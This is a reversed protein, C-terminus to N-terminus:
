EPGLVRGWLVSDKAVGAKVRHSPCLGERTFGAKELVRGSAGNEAFHYAWVRRLGLRTRAFACVARLAETAYGRNWHEPAVWYGVEAVPQRRALILGIAGVIEGGGRQAMLFHAATGDTWAAPLTAIWAVADEERYPHPILLTTEYVRRDGALKAVAPADEFRAPRLILRETEVTPRPGPSPAREAGPEIWTGECIVEAPGTMFVHGSSEDWRVRLAGGPLRVEVDRDLRGTLVGAVVVACAGTGCAQTAGAGREWTRMRARGRTEVAVFHANVRQPFAEHREILPGWRALDIAELARASLAAGSADGFFVAHPNGMSVFTATAEAPAGAREAEAGCLAVAWEHSRPGRKIRDEAVPVRALELVPEGMDVTAEVLTGREDLRYGISLVGRGTEVSMPNHEIGLRDHAFKAVCRVGNGCMESESGDRNFMRMRVQAGREGGASTPPCVVILGDSGVGTHRDSIARALEALDRRAGLAADAFGDLYVYDNGIGHM